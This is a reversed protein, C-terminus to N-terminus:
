FGRWFLSADSGPSANFPMLPTGAGPNSEFRDHSILEVHGDCFLVANQNDHRNAVHSTFQNLFFGQGILIPANSDMALMTRSSEKFRAPSPVRNEGYNANGQTDEFSSLHTNMGFGQNGASQCVPATSNDRQGIDPANPSTFVTGELESWGTPNRGGNLYAFLKDKSWVQGSPDRPAPLQQNNENAYLTFAGYVQRLNSLTETTGAKQRMKGVVPILIAALISIIAIVTLLEILTFGHKLSKSRM